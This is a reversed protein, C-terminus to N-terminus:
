AAANLHAIGEEVTPTEEFFELFGTIQMTDHIMQPLGSLVIQGQQDVIERYLLLLVRLGVSSIYTVGHMDLLIKCHPEVLPLLSDRVEAATSNDIDGELAVITVSDRGDITSKM